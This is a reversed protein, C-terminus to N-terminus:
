ASSGVVAEHQRCARVLAAAERQGIEIQAYFAHVTLPGQRLEAEDAVFRHLRALGLFNGLARRIYYQSRYAATLCLHDGDLQFSLFSMCPFGRPSRDRGPVFVQAQYASRLPGRRRRQSRLATVIAEIQNVTPAAETARTPYAILREFYTGSGNGSLQRLRPLRSRYRSYLQERDGTTGVLASPFITNAVTSVRQWGRRDLLGDLETVVRPDARAPDPDAVSTIVNLQRRGNANLHELAGLWAATVSEGTILIPM